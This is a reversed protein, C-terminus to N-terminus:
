VSIYREKTLEIVDMYEKALIRIDFDEAARRANCCYEDYQEKPWEIIEQIAHAIHQPSCEDISIGCSYREILDYGMKVTSIIPKGSAFYEFLKNSSNGRSWNYKNASYNLINVSAKSLIYPIYKNEVFGKLKVNRIGKEEIGKELDELCNGVGYILIRVNESLFEGADVLTRVNNVPRISGCYIVKFFDNDLDEDLFANDSKQEDFSNLNVGNNVYFCKHLDVDGGSDLDWGREILYEFDGEKLFLM